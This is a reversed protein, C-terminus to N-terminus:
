HRADGRAHYAMAADHDAPRGYARWTFRFGDVEKGKASHTVQLQNAQMVALLESYILEGSPGLVTYALTQRANGLRMLYPVFWLVAVVLVTAVVGEDGLCQIQRPCLSGIRTQDLVRNMSVM